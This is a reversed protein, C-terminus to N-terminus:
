QYQKGPITIYLSHRLSRVLEPYITISLTIEYKEIARYLVRCEGVCRPKEMHAYQM